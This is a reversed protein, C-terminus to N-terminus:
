LWKLKYLIIVETIIMVERNTKNNLEDSSKSDERHKIITHLLYIYIYM